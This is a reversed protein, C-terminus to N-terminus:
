IKLNIKWNKTVSAYIIKEQAPITNKNSCPVTDESVVIGKLVNCTIIIFASCHTIKFYQKCLTTITQDSNPDTM